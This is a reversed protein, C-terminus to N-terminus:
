SRHLLSVQSPILTILHTSFNVRFVSRGRAIKMLSRYLPPPFPTVDRPLDTQWPLWSRPLFLILIPSFFVEASRVPLNAILFLKVGGVGAASDYDSSLIKAEHCASRRPSLPHLNASTFPPSRTSTLTTGFWPTGSNVISLSHLLEAVFSDLSVTM